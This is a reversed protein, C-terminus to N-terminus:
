PASGRLQKLQVYVTLDVQSDALDRIRQLAKGLTEVSVDQEKTVILRVFTKRIKQDGVDALISSLAKDDVTTGPFSSIEGGPHLTLMTIVTPYKFAADVMQINVAGAQRQEPPAAVVCPPLFAVCLVGLYFRHNLM